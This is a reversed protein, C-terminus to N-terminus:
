REKWSIELKCGSNRLAREYQEVALLMESRHHTFCLFGRTGDAAIAYITWTM